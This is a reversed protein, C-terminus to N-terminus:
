RRALAAKQRFMAEDSRHLLDAPTDGAAAQAIGVSLAVELEASLRPWRLQRVQAQIRDCIQRATEADTQPFLVVFEDGGFRAPLDSDRVVSKMAQAVAKLVEDGAAHSHRDNIQKFNDLDLLALCLPQHPNM